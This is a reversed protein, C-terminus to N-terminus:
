RFSSASAADLSRGLILLDSAVLPNAFRNGPSQAASSHITEFADPQSPRRPLQVAGSPPRRRLLPLGRGEIAKFDHFRALSRSRASCGYPRHYPAASPRFGRVAVGIKPPLLFALENFFSMASSSLGKDLLGRLRSAIKRGTAIWGGGGGGGTGEISRPASDFRLFARGVDAFEVRRAAKAM